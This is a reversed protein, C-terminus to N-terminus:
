NNTTLDRNTRMISQAPPSMPISAQSTNITLGSTTAGVSAPPPTPCVGSDRYTLAAALLAETPDGLETNLDDNVACGPTRVGFSENSNAALFGDAYDGFGKDNTGQFQITYFTTGCNDTPYFGFPKGCTTGGILIVEVDIGRLSNIVSESASCTDETTLIFVRSLNLTPLPTGSALSFGLGTTEFGFPANIAGTVPNRNGADANFRLLEFTRGSTQASGAIMYGLQSAVALLGGGNYRLDLVLDSVGATVMDDIADAIEVESAFPSFTNFLIYGVDGTGTSIVSTRNVASDSINASVMTITRTTASGADQVLFTHTEGANAPFLGDNLADVAAQTDANILDIGDVELIRTGRLLNVQGGVVDEAPSGPETYLVRLDRPPTNALFILSAGYSALPASNRARLFDDTPESFHFQDKDRGSPTVETTRLLNFYTVPDNFGNPNRDVVEDNWLYTENTWSRLWFNEEATSGAIDPFANGEFDVGTRVVECRDKFVSAADFVGATYPITTSPPTPNTNTPPTFGGGNSQQSCAALLMTFALMLVSRM